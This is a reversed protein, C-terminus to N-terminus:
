CARIIGADDELFLSCRLSLAPRFASIRYVTIEIVIAQDLDVSPRKPDDVSGVAECDSRQEVGSLPSVDSM